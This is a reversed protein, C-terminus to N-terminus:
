RGPEAISVALEVGPLLRAAERLGSCYAGDVYGFRESSTAEGALLVRGWPAALEAIDQVTAQPTLHLYAGRSYPDSLWNTRHVATPTPLPGGCATALVELALALAAPDDLKALERAPPGSVHAALTPTGTLPSLDIWYPFVPQDKILLGSCAGEEASWFPQDFSLLLKEFAGFGLRQIATLKDAPLAPSFEIAEAKLVGLPVSLLVHSGSERRGDACELTVGHADSNIKAVPWDTSIPLGEALGALLNLYGGSICRDAGEYDCELSYNLLAIDRAPAALDAQLGTKIVFHVWDRLVPDAIDQLRQELWQELSLDAPYQAADEMLEAEISDALELIQTRRAPPLPQGQPDILAMGAYLEAISFERTGLGMFRALESLPNGEPDHIWSGGADVRTNGLALTQTRGGIRPRAEVVLVEIGATMLANAAALGAFGAGVVLVRTVAGPVAELPAPCAVPLLRRSTAFPDSSM